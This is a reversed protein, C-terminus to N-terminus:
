HRKIRRRTCYASINTAADIARVKWYYYIGTTSGHFNYVINATTTDKVITTFTSDTSILIRYTATAEVSNWALPIPNSSTTDNLPLYTVVPIAPATTDITITRESYASSSSSNQAFVRWKYTGAATFTYSSTTTTASQPSGIPVDASTCMQFIYNSASPMSGWSFNQIFINSYYNDVPSTLLLTQGSLNLSSDITITYVVYPTTSSNNLAAVRWQYVGPQLTFSFQNKTISSDLILQQINTFSPKVIQINYKEAGKVVDWWFIQTYTSATYNNAPALITVSSKSLNTEFFDSCSPLAELLVLSIALIFFKNKM